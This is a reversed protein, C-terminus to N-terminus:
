WFGGIGEAGGKAYERAVQKDKNKQSGRGKGVKASAATQLARAAERERVRRVRSAIEMPDVSQLQKGDPGEVQTSGGVAEKKRALYAEGGRVSERVRRGNPRTRAILPRQSLLAAEHLLDNGEASSEESEEEEDDRQIEEEEEEAEEEEVEEEEKDGEVGRGVGMDEVRVCGFVGWLRSMAMREM